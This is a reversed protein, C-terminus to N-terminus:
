TRGMAATTRRSYRDVYYLHVLYIILLCSRRVAVHWGRRSTPAGVGSRSWAVGLTIWRRGRYSAPCSGEDALPLRARQRSRISRDSFSRRCCRSSLLWRGISRCASPPLRQKRIRRLDQSEVDNRPNGVGSIALDRPSRTAIAARSRVFALRNKPLRAIKSCNGPPAM